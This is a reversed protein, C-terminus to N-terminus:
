CCYVVAILVIIDPFKSFADPEEQKRSGQSAVVRRFGSNEIKFIINEKDSRAAAGREEKRRKVYRKVVLTIIM